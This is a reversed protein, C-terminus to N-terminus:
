SASMVLKIEATCYIHVFNCVCDFPINFFCSSGKAVFSSCYGGSWVYLCTM